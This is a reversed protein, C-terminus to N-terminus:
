TSAVCHHHHTLLATGPFAEDWARRTSGFGDDRMLSKDTDDPSITEHSLLGGFHQMSVEHYQASMSMHTHWIFDVDVPPVCFVEPCM